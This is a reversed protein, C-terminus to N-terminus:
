AGERWTASVTFQAATTLAVSGTVLQVEWGEATSARAEYGQGSLYDTLDFEYFGPVDPRVIVCDLVNGRTPAGTAGTRFVASSSASGHNHAQITQSTGGPTGNEATIRVLKLLAGNGGAGDAWSVKFRAAAYPISVGSGHFLYGLSITTSAAVGSSVTGNSCAGYTTVEALARDWTSGNFAMLMAAQRLTTPNSEGDALAAAAALGVQRIAVGYDSSGPAANLVAAIAAATTGAIQHRERQVTVSSVTLQETDLRKTPSAVETLDISSDAM